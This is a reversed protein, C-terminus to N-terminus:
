KLLELVGKVVENSRAIMSQSAQLLVKNKELEAIEKAIDASEIISQANTLNIQYNGVNNGIHELANYYAGFESRKSSVKAMAEDIKKLSEEANEIPDICVDEIGLKSVRADMLEVEFTHGEAPGVQFHLTPMKDEDIEVSSESGIHEGIVSSLQNGWDVERIDVSKGSIENIFNLYSKKEYDGNYIYPSADPNYVGHVQIGTEKLMKLTEDYKENDDGFEDTLLIIHKSSVASSERFDYEDAVLQMATMGNEIGAPNELNSLVGYLEEFKTCWKDGDFKEVTYSYDGYTLLGMRIDTVGKSEISGIFTQLNEAVKQQYEGMSGSVDVVFVIDAVGGSPKSAEDVLPPRLVKTTNFETNNAIEDIGQKIQDIETQMKERDEQTYTGNMGQIILERMRQLNPNMILGLASEAVSVLSKGDEINNQAQGLGRILAKMKESISLGAADDSARNIRLGSSIRQFNSAIKENNVNSRNLANLAAINHNIRMTKGKRMIGASETHIDM